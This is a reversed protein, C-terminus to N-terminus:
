VTSTVAIGFVFSHFSDSGFWLIMVMSMKGSVVGANKSAPTSSM